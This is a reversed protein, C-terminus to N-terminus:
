KKKVVVPLLVRGAVLLDFTDTATLGDGTTIQVEVQYTGAGRGEPEIDLCHVCDYPGADGDVYISLGLSAPLSNLVAFSQGEMSEGAKNGSYYDLDLPEELGKGVGVVLPKDLPYGGYVDYFDLYPGPRINVVFSSGAALTGDVVDVHIPVDKELRTNVTMSLFHGHIIEWDMYTSNDNSTYTLASL